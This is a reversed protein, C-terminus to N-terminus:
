GKLQRSRYRIFQDVIGHINSCFSVADIIFKDPEDLFEEILIENLTDVFCFKIEKNKPMAYDKYEKTCYFPTQKAYEDMGSRFVKEYYKRLFDQDFHFTLKNRLGILNKGGEKQKEQEVMERIRSINCEWTASVNPDNKCVCHNLINKFLGGKIIQETDKYCIINGLEMYFGLMLQKLFVDMSGYQINYNNFINKDKPAQKDLWLYLNLLNMLKNSYTALFQIFNFVKQEDSKKGHKSIFVESSFEQIEGLGEALKEITLPMSDTKKM